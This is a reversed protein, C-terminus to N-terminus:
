WAPGRWSSRCRALRVVRQPKRVPRSPTGCRGEANLVAAKLPTLAAARRATPRSVAATRMLLRTTRSSHSTPTTRTPATSPLLTLWDAPALGGPPLGAKLARRYEAIKPKRKDPETEGMYGRIVYTGGM